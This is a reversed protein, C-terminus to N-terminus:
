IFWIKTLFKMIEGINYSEGISGKKIFYKLAQCHDSFMFGIELIAVMVM